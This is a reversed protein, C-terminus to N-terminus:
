GAAVPLTVRFTTGANSRSEASITGGHAEVIRKAMALGLGVGGSARSRSRDTRFFPTFLKPLDSPDIGIGQDQVEVVLRGDGASARLAVPQDAESYKRANDLLNDVARQLLAQDGELAPLGGGAQVELARGPHRARFRDVSHRILEESSFQQRKLPPGASARNQGLDLKAAALIDSVLQELEDLDTGIEALSERTPAAGEAESALDLAVRIRSLPTRLEHSVNALLETQARLLSSIREAMEDFARAVDGLEDRRALGTRTALEGRGLAGAVEALRGLPRALARAFVLSAVGLISLVLAIPAIVRTSVGRPLELSMVGYGPSAEGPKGQVPFAMACIAGRCLMEPATKQRVLDAIHAVELPAQPETASSMVMTGDSRYLTVTLGLERKLRDAEARMAAPDDWQDTVKSLAYRAFPAARDRFGPPGAERSLHALLVEGVLICVILVLSFAYIQLVLRRRM